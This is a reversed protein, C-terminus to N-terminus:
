QLTHLTSVYQITVRHYYSGINVSYYLCAPYNDFKSEDLCVFLPCMNYTVARTNSTEIIKTHFYNCAYDLLSFKIEKYFGRM